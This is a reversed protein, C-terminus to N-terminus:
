VFFGFDWILYLVIFTPSLMLNILSGNFQPSPSLFLTIFYQSIPCTILFGSHSHQLLFSPANYDFRPISIIASHQEWPKMEEKVGENEEGEQQHEEGSKKSEEVEAM